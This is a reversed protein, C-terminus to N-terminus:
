HKLHPATTPPNSNEGDCLPYPNASQPSKANSPIIAITKKSFSSLPNGVQIAGAVYYYKGGDRVTNDVCATGVIPRLNVRKCKICHDLNKASIDQKGTRYLCYGLTPDTPGQSSPSANWTLVVSHHHDAKPESEELSPPKELPNQPCDPLPQALVAAETRATSHAAPQVTPEQRSRNCANATLLTCAFIVELLRRCAQCHPGRPDTLRMDSPRNKQVDMNHGRSSAADIVRFLREEGDFAMTARM